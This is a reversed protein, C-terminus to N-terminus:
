YGMKKKYRNIRHWVSDKRMGFIEAIDKYKMGEERMEKMQKPDADTLETRGEVQKFAMEPSIDRYICLVLAEMNDAIDIARMSEGEQKADTISGTKEKQMM